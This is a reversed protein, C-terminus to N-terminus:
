YGLENLCRLRVADLFFHSNTQENRVDNYPKRKRVIEGKFFIKGFNTNKKAM